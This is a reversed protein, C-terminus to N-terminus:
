LYIGAQKLAESIRHLLEAPHMDALALDTYIDRRLETDFTNRPAETAIQERVIDELTKESM